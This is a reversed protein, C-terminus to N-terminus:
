TALSFDACVFRHGFFTAAIALQVSPERAGALGCRKCLWHWHGGRGRGGRVLALGVLKVSPQIAGLFCCGRRWRRKRAGLSSRSSKGCAAGEDFHEIAILERLCTGWSGMNRSWGCGFFRFLARGMSGKRGRAGQWPGVSLFKRGAPRLPRAHQWLLSPRSPAGGAERPLSGLLLPGQRQREQRPETGGGRSEERCGTDGDFNSLSSPGGGIDADFRRPVLAAASRLLRQIRRRCPFRLLTCAM